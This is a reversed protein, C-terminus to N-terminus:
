PRANRDTRQHDPKALLAIVDGGTLIGLPRRDRDIVLVADTGCRRMVRTAIAVTADDEVIPQPEGCATAVTRRAFHMPLGAWEAAVTRDALLGVCRGEDDVVALHRLGHAVLAHLAETFSASASVALVPHSMVTSVAVNRLDGRTPNRHRGPSRKCTGAPGTATTDRAAHNAERTM